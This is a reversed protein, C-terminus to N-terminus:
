LTIQTFGRSMIRFLNATNSLVHQNRCTFCVYRVRFLYVDNKLKLSCGKNCDILNLTHCLTRSLIGSCLVDAQSQVAICHIGFECFNSDRASFFDLVSHLMSVSPVKPNLCRPDIGENGTPREIYPGIISISTYVRITMILSLPSRLGACCNPSM